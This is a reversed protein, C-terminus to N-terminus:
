KIEDLPPMTHSIKIKGLTLLEDFIRDCKSVDFTFKLKEQWGKTAPKLSACSSAKSKSPWVFEAVYVENEDSSDSDYEVVHVNSRHPKSHEKEKNLKLEQAMGRVLVNALTHFEVGDLRDRITPRLGRAALDALDSDTLTLNFCHTKVEKFRKLYDSVSEEKNQRVSILDTLKLQYSGSFFHDHLKQELQDWSDVSNPALSSFWAFTTGTL